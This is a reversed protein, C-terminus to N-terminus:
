YNCRTTSAVPYTVGGLTGGSYVWYRINRSSRRKVLIEACAHQSTRLLTEFNDEKSTFVKVSIIDNAGSLKSNFFVAFTLELKIFTTSVFTITM